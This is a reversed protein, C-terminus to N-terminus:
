LSHFIHELTLVAYATVLIPDKEWWRGTGNVWSGDTQQLDFLKRALDLKWDVEKGDALELSDIGAITLAKAMTHYYYFLGEHEMGPNEEVSYHAELWDIAAAVRPDNQDMEAYIFSLLGAYSMSGYSRPVAKGGPLIKEGAKSNGPFYVFGGRNEPDDGTGDGSDLAPLNQCREVFSIAADWDLEASGNAGPANATDALAKRSYYLAELALHTNSLDSHTYTGGYGIGGDFANDDIGPEGYDAQQGILFRRGQLIPVDYEPNGALSLALLCLSTNYTALGEGYIGGDPKQRDLIFTFAEAISDSFPETADRAPDGLFACLPLATLAPYRPDGLSGTTDDQQTRLWDIGREIARAVELKLSLNGAVRSFEAPKDACASPSSAGCLVALVIAPATLPPITSKM